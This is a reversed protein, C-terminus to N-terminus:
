CLEFGTQAGARAPAPARRRSGGGRGRRSAVARLREASRRDPGADLPHEPREGDPGSRLRGEAGDRGVRNRASRDPHLSGRRHPVVAFPFPFPVSTLNSVGDSGVDFAFFASSAAGVAGSPATTPNIVDTGNIALVDNEAGRDGWFEKYRIVTVATHNDSSEIFPDLVLAANVRVLHDSRLFPEFFYNLGKSGERIM